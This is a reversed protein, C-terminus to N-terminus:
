KCNFKKMEGQLRGVAKLREAAVDWNKQKVATQYQKQKDALGQRLQPCVFNEEAKAAATFASGIFVFLALLQRKM